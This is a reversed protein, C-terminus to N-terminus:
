VFEVKKLLKLTLLKLGVILLLSTKNYAREGNLVDSSLWQYDSHMLILALSVVVVRPLSLYNRLEM